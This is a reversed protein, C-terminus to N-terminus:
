YSQIPPKVLEIGRKNFQLIVKQTKGLSQDGNLILLVPHQHRQARRQFRRLTQDFSASRPNFNARLAQGMRVFNLPISALQRRLEDSIRSKSLFSLVRSNPSLKGFRRLPELDSSRATSDLLSSGDRRIFWFSLHKYRDAFRNKLRQAELAEQVRFVMSVPEGLNIMQQLDSSSPPEDFVVLISAPDRQQQLSPDMRLHVSRIVAGRYYCYIHLSQNDLDLRAPSEIGYPYLKRNLVAHFQTQSFSPSVNIIYEKRIFGSDIRHHVQKVQKTNINFQRLNRRLLSDVTAFDELNKIQPPQYILLLWGAILSSLALLLAIIRKKQKTTM